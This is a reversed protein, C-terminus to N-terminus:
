LYYARHSTTPPDKYDTIPWDDDQTTGGLAVSLREYSAPLSPYPSSSSIISIHLRKGSIFITKGIADQIFKVKSGGGAFIVKVEDVRHNSASLYQTIQSISKEMLVEFSVKIDSCMKKIENSESLEFLNVEVNAEFIKSNKFLLEKIERRRINLRKLLAYDTSNSKNKILKLVESDILDGAKYISIPDSLRILKRKIQYADPTLSIFSAMDTTGAGVDIIVCFERSNEKNSFLELASAVPEIVDINTYSVMSPHGSIKSFLIDSSLTKNSDNGILFSDSIIKEFNLTVEAKNSEPWVPHSVRIEYLKLEFLSLGLCKCLGILAQNLLGSLLHSKTLGATGFVFEELQNSVIWKKPSIEFLHNEDGRQGRRLANEGFLVEDGSISIFIASPISAKDISSTVFAEGIELISPTTDDGRIAARISSTGFDICIIKSPNLEFEVRQRGNKIHTKIEVNCEPCKFNNIEIEFPILLLTDCSRCTIEDNPM